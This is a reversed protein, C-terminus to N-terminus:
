VLFFQLVRNSTMSTAMRWSTKYPEIRRWEVEFNSQKALHLMGKHTIRSLHNPPYDADDRMYRLHYREVNPISVFFLGNDTLHKWVEEM